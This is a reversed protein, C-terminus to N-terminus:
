FHGLIWDHVEPLRRLLSLHGLTPDLRLDVGPIRAAVWKGHAIPCFRDEGGHRVQVPVRIRSPEFGWPEILWLNDDRVGEDGPALGAHATDAMWQAMEETLATRDVESLLTSMIEIIQRPGAALMDDRDKRSKALWSTRDRQMLEFDEVNAAGMGATWDLGEAPYPAVGALWVSAVVRKPLLAACALAPAGGGSFGWVGFRDVGLEDAIARVDGAVDAIRRGPAATSGGYGPRDYSILRIGKARADAAVPPYAIRNSPTGHLFIVPRGAPDGCERVLLRRGDRLTVIRDLDPTVDGRLSAPLYCPAGAM